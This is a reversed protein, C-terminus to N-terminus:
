PKMGVHSKSGIEARQRLAEEYVEVTQRAISEWSYVNQARGRALKGFLEMEEPRNILSAMESKLSEVNKTEFYV